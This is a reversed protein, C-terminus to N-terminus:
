ARRGDRRRTQRPSSGPCRRPPSLQEPTPKTKTAPPALSAAAQLFTAHSFALPFNGLHAGTTPDIEEGFLGLPSSLAVLDDLLEGAEDPRGATALAQAWWFSCVLFAGEGGELGDAGPPYRYLLPGGASLEDAIADITGHM